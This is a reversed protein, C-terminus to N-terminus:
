MMGAHLIQEFPSTGPVEAPAQFSRLDRAMVIKTSQPERRRLQPGIEDSETPTLDNGKMRLVFHMTNMMFHAYLRDM